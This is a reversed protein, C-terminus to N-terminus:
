SVHLQWPIICSREAEGAVLIAHHKDHQSTVSRAVDRIIGPAPGRRRRAQLLLAKSGTGDGHGSRKAYPASYVAVEHELLGKCCAANDTDCNRGVDVVSHPDFCTWSGMKMWKESEGGIKSRRRTMEKTCKAEQEGRSARHMQGKCHTHGSCAHSQSRGSISHARETSDKTQDWVM